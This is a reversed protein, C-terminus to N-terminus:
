QPYWPNPLVAASYGSVFETAGDTTTNFGYRRVSGIDDGYLHTSVSLRDPLPNAFTFIDKPNHHCVRVVAPRLLSPTGATLATRGSAL